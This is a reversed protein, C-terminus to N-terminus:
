EIKVFTCIKKLEGMTTDGVPSIYYSTLVYNFTLNNGNFAGSGSEYTMNGLIAKKPLTITNGKLSVKDQKIDLSSTNIRLEDSNAGPSFEIFMNAQSGIPTGNNFADATGKYYGTYQTGPQNQESDDKCSTLLMFGLSVVWLCYLSLRSRKM